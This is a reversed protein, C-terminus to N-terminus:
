TDNGKIAITLERVHFQFMIDDREGDEEDLM